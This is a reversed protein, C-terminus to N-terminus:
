ASPPFDNGIMLITKKDDSIVHEIGVWGAAKARRWVPPAAEPRGGKTSIRTSPYANFVHNGIIPFSTQHNSIIEWWTGVM